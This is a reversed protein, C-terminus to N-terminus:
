KKPQKKKISEKLIEIQVEQKRISQILKEENEWYSEIIPILKSITNSLESVKKELIRYKEHRYYPLSPSYDSM